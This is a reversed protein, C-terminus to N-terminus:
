RTTPRRNLAQQKHTAWRCNGPEYNGNNDIRDITFRPSPRRGMDILFNMYSSRWRECVRIGREGYYKFDKSHPNECRNIMGAWTSYETTAESSEGHILKLCGCSKTNGSVLNDAVAVTINGCDCQCGWHSKKKGTEIFETVILKGFRQGRLDVRQEALKDRLLCGCSQTRGGRLNTSSAVTTNGCSCLCRWYTEGRGAVHDHAIVRLRGFEQGTRDIYMNFDKATPPPSMLLTGYSPCTSDAVSAM